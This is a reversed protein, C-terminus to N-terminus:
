EKFRALMQAETLSELEGAFAYGRPKHDVYIEAALQFASPDEFSGVAVFYQGTPKLLYFLSSGCTRCFGRQAWASSDYRGLERESEFGVSSAAAAFLPAGAWRRCMGCHCVHHRTEVDQATYRVAGCLCRGSMAAM